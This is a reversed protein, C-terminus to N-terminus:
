ESDKVKCIEWSLLIRGTILLLYSEPSMNRKGTRVQSVNSKNIIMQYFLQAIKSCAPWAHKLAYYVRGARSDRDSVHQYAQRCQCSQFACRGLRAHRRPVKSTLLRRTWDKKEEKKRWQVSLCRFVIQLAPIASSSTSRINDLPTTVGMGCSYPKEPMM